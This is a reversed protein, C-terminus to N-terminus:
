GSSLTGNCGSTGASKKVLQRVVGIIIAKRHQTKSFLSLNGSISISLSMSKGPFNFSLFVGKPSNFQIKVATTSVMAQPNNGRSSKLFSKRFSKSTAANYRLKRSAWLSMRWYPQVGIHSGGTLM